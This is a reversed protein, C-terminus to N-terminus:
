ATIGMERLEDRAAEQVFDKEHALFSRIREEADAARENSILSLFSVLGSPSLVHLNNKIIEIDLSIKQDAYPDFLYSLCELLEEQADQSLTLYDEIIPRFGDILFGPLKSEGWPKELHIKLTNLMNAVHEQDEYPPQIEQILDELSYEKSEIM